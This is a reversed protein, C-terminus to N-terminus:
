PQLAKEIDIESPIRSQVTNYAAVSLALADSLDNDKLKLNLSFTQNAWIVSLHKPTIKGRIKGSKVDKNHKKQEKNLRIHLMSRWRSTDVYIVKNSIQIDRIRSLVAYHIFELGKQSTRNRGNNTQEIAIIDPKFKNILEIAQKSISIAKDMMRYDELFDTHVEVKPLINGIEVLVTSNENANIVAYGSHFSLDLGIIIM